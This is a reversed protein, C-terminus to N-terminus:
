GFGLLDKFAFLFGYKGADPVPNFIDDVLNLTIEFVCARNPFVTRAPDVVVGHNLRM